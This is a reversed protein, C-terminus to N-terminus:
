YLASDMTTDNLLKLKSKPIVISQSLIVTMRAFVNFYNESEQEFMCLMDNLSIINYEYNTGQTCVLFHQSNTM